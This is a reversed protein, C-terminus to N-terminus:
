CSSQISEHVIECTGNKVNSDESTDMDTNDGGNEAEVEPNDRLNERVEKQIALELELVTIRGKQESVTAELQSIRAEQEGLRKLIDELISEIEASDVNQNSACLLSTVLLNIIFFIRLNM